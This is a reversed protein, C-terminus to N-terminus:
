VMGLSFAPSGALAYCLNALSGSMPSEACFEAWPNTANGVINLDIWTGASFNRAHIHLTITGDMNDGDCAVTASVKWLWVTQVLVAAAENAGQYLDRIKTGPDLLSFHTGIVYEWPTPPGVLTCTDNLNGQLCEDRQYFPFTVITTGSAYGSVIALLENIAAYCAACNAYGCCCPNESLAAGVRFLKTGRRHLPM